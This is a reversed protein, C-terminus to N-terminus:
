STSDLRRRILTCDGALHAGVLRTAGMNESTAGPINKRDDDELQLLKAGLPMHRDLGIVTLPIVIISAHHMRPPLRPCM